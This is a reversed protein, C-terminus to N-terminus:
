IHPYESLNYLVMSVLHATTDMGASYLVMFNDFIEEKTISDDKLFAEIYSGLFDDSKNM